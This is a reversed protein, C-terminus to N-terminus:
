KATLKLQEMANDVSGESDECFRIAAKLEYEEVDEEDGDSYKVRWLDPAESSAPFHDIVVGEYVEEGFPKMIAKALYKDGEKQGEIVSDDVM